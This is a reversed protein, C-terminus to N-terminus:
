VDLSEQLKKTTLIWTITPYFATRPMDQLSIIHWRKYINELMTLNEKCLWLIMDIQDASIRSEEIETLMKKKM